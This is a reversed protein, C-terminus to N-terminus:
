GPHYMTLIFAIGLVQHLMQEIYHEYAVNPSM